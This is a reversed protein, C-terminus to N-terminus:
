LLFLDYIVILSHCGETPVAQESSGGTPCCLFHMNVWTTHIWKLQGRRLQCLFFFDKKNKTFWKRHIDFGYSLLLWKFVIIDAHFYPM